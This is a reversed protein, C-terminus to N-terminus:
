GVYLDELDSYLELKYEMKYSNVHSHIYFLFESDSIKLFVGAIKCYCPYMVYYLRLMEQQFLECILSSFHGTLFVLKIETLPQFHFQVM